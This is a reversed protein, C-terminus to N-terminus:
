HALNGRVYKIRRKSVRGCAHLDRQLNLLASPPFFDAAAGRVRIAPQPMKKLRAREDCGPVPEGEFRLWIKLLALYVAEIRLDGDDEFNVILVLM